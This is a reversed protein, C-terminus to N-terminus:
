TLPYDSVLPYISAQALKVPHMHNENYLLSHKTHIKKKKPPKYLGEMFLSWKPLPPLSPEGNCKGGLESLLEYSVHIGLSTGSVWKLTNFECVRENGQKQEQM